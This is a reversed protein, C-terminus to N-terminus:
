EKLLKQPTQSAEAFLHPLHNKKAIMDCGSNYVDNLSMLILVFPRRNKKGVDIDINRNRHSFRLTTMARSYNDGPSISGQAENIRVDTKKKKKKSRGGKLLSKNIVLIM